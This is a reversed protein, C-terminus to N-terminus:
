GNRNAWQEQGAYYQGGYVLIENAATNLTLEDASRMALTWMVRPESPLGTGAGHFTLPDAFLVDGAKLEVQIAQDKLDGLEDEDLWYGGGNPAAGIPWLHSTPIIWPRSVETDPINLGVLVTLFSRSWQLSDRHLQRSPLGEGHDVTIHNHRNRILVLNPGLLSHVISVFKEERLWDILGLCESADELKALRNISDFTALPAPCSGYLIRETLKRCEAENFVHRAILYGAQRFFLEKNNM